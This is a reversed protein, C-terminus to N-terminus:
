SQPCPLLLTSDTPTPVTCLGPTREAHVGPSASSLTDRKVGLLLYGVGERAILKNYPALGDRSLALYSVEIDGYWAFSAGLIFNM